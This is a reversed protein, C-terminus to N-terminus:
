AVKADLKLSAMTDSVFFPSTSELWDLMGLIERSLPRSPHDKRRDAVYFFEVSSHIGFLTGLRHPVANAITDEESYLPPTNELAMEARAARELSKRLPMCTEAYKVRTDLLNKKRAENNGHIVVLLRGVHLVTSPRAARLRFWLIFSDLPTRTYIATKCTCIQEKFRFGNTDSMEKILVDFEAFQSCDQYQHRSFFVSMFSRAVGKRLFLYNGATLLPKTIYDADFNLMHMM